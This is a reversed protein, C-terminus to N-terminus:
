AYQYASIVYEEKEKDYTIGDEDIYWSQNRCKNIIDNKKYVQAIKNTFETQDLGSGWFDGAMEIMENGEADTKFNLGACLRQGNYIIAADVTEEIYSNKITRNNRDLTIGMELLSQELIEKNTNQLANNKYTTLHSM